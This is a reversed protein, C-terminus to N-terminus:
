LVHDALQVCVEVRKPLFSDAPTVVMSVLRVDPTAIDQLMRAYTYKSGSNCANIYAKAYTHRVDKKSVYNSISNMYRKKKNSGSDSSLSGEFTASNSADVSTDNTKGSDEGTYEIESRSARRKESHIAGLSEKM